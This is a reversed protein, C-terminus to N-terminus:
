TGGAIPTVRSAYVPRSCATRATLDAPWAFHLHGAAAGNINAHERQAADDPLRGLYAGLLATIIQRQDPWLQPWSV